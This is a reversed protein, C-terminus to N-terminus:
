VIATPVVSPKCFCLLFHKAAGLANLGPLASTPSIAAASIPARSSRDAPLSSCLGGSPSPVPHGLCPLPALASSPAHGLRSVECYRLLVVGSPLAPTFLPDSHASCLMPGQRQGPSRPHGPHAQFAQSCTAGPDDPAPLLSLTRERHWPAGCEGFISHLIQLLDLSHRPCTWNYTRM